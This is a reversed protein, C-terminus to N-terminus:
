QRRAEKTVRVGLDKAMEPFFLPLGENMVQAAGPVFNIFYKVPYKKDYIEEDGLLRGRMEEEVATILTMGKSALGLSPLISGKTISEMSLPSYYFSLEERFKNTLKFLYKYRNKEADTADEPPEAISVALFLGLLGFLVQLEKVERQLERRMLDYFEEQTIDLNEGTRRYHEEKKAELMEDLIKLGEDTGAIIANMKGLNRLGLQAWTKAFVRMRGYEWEDLEVNKKIDGTRTLLLKPIWNKFMMFSSLITDRRYGAKNDSNMHGSLNRSYETVRLAYKAQEEKNVGLLVLKDNEITAVKTLAKTAKLEAVRAEFSKELAKREEFSMKFNGNSDKGYRAEDQRKVYQRIPVIKGDVIMSNENFSM